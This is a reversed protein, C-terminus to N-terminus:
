GRKGTKFSLAHIPPVCGRVVSAQQLAMHAADQGPKDRVDVDEALWLLSVEEYFDRWDPNATMILRVKWARPWHKMTKERQIAAEITDFEDHWVLRKLGYRTTFGPTLGERYEYVRGALDSTVGIYLTGNPRNTMIYVSGGRM